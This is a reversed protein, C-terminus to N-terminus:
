SESGSERIPFGTLSCIREVDYCPILVEYEGTFDHLQLSFYPKLYIKGDSEYVKYPKYNKSKLPEDKNWDPVSVRKNIQYLGTISDLPLAVVHSLDAFCLCNDALYVSMESNIYDAFFVENKVKGKKVSYTRFLIDINESNDPVGLEEKSASSLAEFNQNIANVDMNQEARHAKQKEALMLVIWGVACIDCIYFVWPANAYAQRWTVDARLISGFLLLAGLLFVGKLITLALPLSSKEEFDLADNQVLEIQQALSYSVERSIFHAGDIRENEPNSTQDVNFVNKM